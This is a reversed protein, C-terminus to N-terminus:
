VNELESPLEDASYDLGPVHVCSDWMLINVNDSKPVAYHNNLELEVFQKSPSLKEKNSESGGVSSNTSTGKQEEEVSDSSNSFFRQYVLCGVVLFCVTISICIVVLIGVSLPGVKKSDAASGKENVDNGDSVEYNLGGTGQYAVRTFNTEKDVGLGHYYSDFSGTSIAKTLLRATTDFGSQPSTGATLGFTMKVSINFEPRSTDPNGLYQLDILNQTKEVNRITELVYTWQYQNPTSHTVRITATYQLQTAAKTPGATPKTSGFTPLKTPAAVNCLGYASQCDVGCHVSTFGCWGARSCCPAEEANGCYKNEFDAGCRGDTSMVANPARTPAVVPQTAQVTIDDRKQVTANATNFFTALLSVILNV